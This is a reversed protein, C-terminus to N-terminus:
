LCYVDVLPSLSSLSAEAGEEGAVEDSEGVRRAAGTITVAKIQCLGEVEGMQGELKHLPIHVSDPLSCMDYHHKM